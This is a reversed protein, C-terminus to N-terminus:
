GAFAGRAELISLLDGVRDAELLEDDPEIGFESSIVTFLQADAVSTWTEVSARSDEDTLKGPPLGFIEEVMTQFGAKTM